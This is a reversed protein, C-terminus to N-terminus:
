PRPSLRGEPRRSPGPRRSSGATGDPLVDGRFFCIEESTLLRAAMWDDFVKPPEGASHYSRMFAAILATRSASVPKGDIVTKGIGDLHARFEERNMTRFRGTTTDVSGVEQLFGTAPIDRERKFVRDLGPATEPGMDPHPQLRLALLKRMRDFHGAPSSSGWPPVSAISGGHGSGGPRCWSSPYTGPSPM